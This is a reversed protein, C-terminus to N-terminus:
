CGFDLVLRDLAACLAQEVPARRNLEFTVLTDVQFVRKARPKQVPEYAAIGRILGDQAEVALVGGGREFLEGMRALWSALSLMSAATRALPWALPLKERPLQAISLDLARLSRTM